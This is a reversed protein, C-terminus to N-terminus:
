VTQPDPWFPRVPAQGRGLRALQGSLAVLAVGIHVNTALAAQTSRIENLARAARQPDAM